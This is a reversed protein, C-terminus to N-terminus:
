TPATGRPSPQNLLRRLKALQEETPKPAAAAVRAFFAADDEDNPPIPLTRSPSM